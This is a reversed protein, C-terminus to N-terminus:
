HATLDWSDNRWPPQQAAVACEHFRLMFRLGLYPDVHKAPQSLFGLMGLVSGGATERSLDVSATLGRGETSGDVAVLIRMQPTIAIMAQGVVGDPQVGGAGGGGHGEAPNADKTSPM